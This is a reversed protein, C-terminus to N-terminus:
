AKQGQQESMQDINKVADAASIGNAETLRRDREV